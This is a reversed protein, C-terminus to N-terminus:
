NLTKFKIKYKTVKGSFNDTKGLKKELRTLNLKRRCQRCYIIEIKGQKAKKEIYRKITNHTTCYFTKNTPLTNWGNLLERKNCFYLIHRDEHKIFMRMYIRYHRTYFIYKNIDAKKKLIIYYLIAFIGSIIILDKLILVFSRM